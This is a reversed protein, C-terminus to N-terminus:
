FRVAWHPDKLADVWACWDTSTSVCFLSNGKRQEIVVVPNGAMANALRNKGKSSIPTLTVEM